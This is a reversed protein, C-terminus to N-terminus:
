ESGNVFHQGPDFVKYEVVGPPTGDTLGRVTDLCVRRGDIRIFESYGAMVPLTTVCPRIFAGSNPCMSISKSEPDNDVLVARTDITVWKQRAAIKVTGRHLCKLDAKDTLFLM